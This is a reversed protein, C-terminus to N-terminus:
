AVVNNQILARVVERTTISQLCDRDCCVTTQLHCPSCAVPHYIIHVRNKGRPAWRRPDSPGFIAVAPCGVAAALHLIGSDNGCYVACQSLLFACEQLPLNNCLFDDHPYRNVIEAPGSFWAISYNHYRLEDAVKLFNNFPWNKLLSGSGPHLAAIPKQMPLSHMEGSIRYNYLACTLDPIRDDPTVESQAVLQLHYDIIHSDAAAFPSQCEIVASSFSRANSYLPSTADTFLYMRDFSSFFATSKQRDPDTSFLFANGSSESDVIADISHNAKALLGFAPKGLLTIHCNDYKKLFSLAPLITIFDGLAGSHYVLTRM